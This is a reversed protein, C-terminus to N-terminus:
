APPAWAARRCRTSCPSRRLAAGGHARRGRRSARRVGDPLAARRRRQRRHAIYPPLPVHGHAELLALPDAPFRLRFLSGDPGARGLVEADFADAFRIRPQGAKPSKSARLQALVEDAAAARARGAGRGRRRTAKHGHLRAKIVRTDNFVLLDGPQLLAPLDRFM